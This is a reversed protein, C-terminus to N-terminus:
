GRRSTSRGYRRGLLISSVIDLAIGWVFHALVLLLNRGVPRRQPPPLTGAAPLWGIYSAAWVFLGYVAGRLGRPLPLVREALAYTMGSLAGYGFHAFISFHKRGKESLEDDLNVKHLIDDSVRRPELTTQERKPLLRQMILMTVTMPITAIFGSVAGAIAEQILPRQSKQSAM